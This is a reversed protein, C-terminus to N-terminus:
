RLVAVNYGQSEILRIDEKSPLGPYAVYPTYFMAQIYFDGLNFLALKADGHAQYFGRLLKARESNSDAFPLSREVPRMHRGQHWFSMHEGLVANTKWFCDLVLYRAPAVCLVLLVFVALRGCLHGGASELWDWWAASQILFVAPAAVMVYSPMKTAVVAFFVYPVLFWIGIPLPKYLAKRFLPRTFFWLLSFLTIAGFYSSIERFHYISAGGHGELAEFIHRCNYLQEWAAEKLFAYHVYLQWPVFVFASIAIIMTLHRFIVAPKERRWMLALWIPIVLFATLWKTLVGLGITIGILPILSPRNTQAFFVSLCVGLEVFFILATDVHDSPIRGAALFILYPNLSHFFSALLAVKKNFLAAGIYYTLLIATSSLLLSPLRAAIENVGLIKMSFAMLWLALPQKHLWIHNAQWDKYDFPLLPHDYLTPVLPHNLFNKAVLAHFREDWQYLFPDSCFYLRVTLGSLAICLASFAYRKRRYSVVAAIVCSVWLMAVSLAFHTESM